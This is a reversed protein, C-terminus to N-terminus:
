TVVEQADGFQPGDGRDLADTVLGLVWTTAIAAEDSSLGHERTLGDWSGSSVLRRLIGAVAIRQRDSLEPYTDAVAEHFSRTREAHSRTPEVAEVVVLAHTLEPEQSFLEFNRRVAGALSAVGDPHARGGERQMREALWEALADILERRSAFHNYITRQSVGAREAVQAMTFGVLGEAAAHEALAELIADRSLQKQREQLSSSVFVGKESIVFYKCPDHLGRYVPQM